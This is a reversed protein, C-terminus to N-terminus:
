VSFPNWPEPYCKCWPHPYEPYRNALYIGELPLITSSLGLNRIKLITEVPKQSALFECIEQGGYWPHNPHLKWRVFRVGVLRMADVAIDNSKRAQESVSLRHMQKVASGGKVPTPGTGSATLGLKLNKQIRSVDGNPANSNIARSIKERIKKQHNEFRKKATWKSKAPFEEKAWKKMHKTLLENMQKRSLGPFGLSKLANNQAMLSTKMSRYVNDTIIGNLDKLVKPLNKGAIKSIIVKSKPSIANDIIEAGLLADEIKNYYVKLIRLISGRERVAANFLSLRQNALVILRNKAAGQLDQRNAKKAKTIIEPM